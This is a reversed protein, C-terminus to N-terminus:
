IFGAATEESAVETIVDDALCFLITAHAREEMTVLEPDETETVLSEAGAAAGTVTKTVKTSFGPTLPRWICRQKLLARMKIQWLEFNNRGTFRDIKTAVQQAMM